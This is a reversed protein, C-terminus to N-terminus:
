CVLDIHPYSGPPRPYTFILPPLTPSVPYPTPCSQLTQIKQPKNLNGRIVCDRLPQPKLSPVERHAVVRQGGTCKGGTSDLPISSPTDPSTHVASHPLIHFARSQLSWNPAMFAMSDTTQNDALCQHKLVTKASRNLHSSFDTKREQRRGNRGGLGGEMGEEMRGGM